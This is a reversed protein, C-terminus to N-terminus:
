AYKWSYPLVNEIYYGHKLHFKWICEAGPFNEIDPSEFIVEPTGTMTLISNTEFDLFLLGATPNMLFNGLTNFHFNGSYDPITLTRDDDFRVFGAPGGRHSVDGGSSPESDKSYDSSVFFTDSSIIIYQHLRSFSKFKEVRINSSDTNQSFERPTIFKPCNGFSQKVSLTFGNKSVADITTSLRNRRRNSLNIGLVGLSLGSKLSKNLPDAPLPLVNVKLTRANPSNLFGQEGTLISAWSDGEKDIHSVFVYPLEKYFERHQEPMYDRIVKRGFRDMREDVGLAKQIILEGEHFPSKELTQM